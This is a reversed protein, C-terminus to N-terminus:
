CFRAKYYKKNWHTFYEIFSNYMSELTDKVFDKNDQPVNELIIPINEEFRLFYKKDEETLTCIEDERFDFWENLLSQLDNKNINM